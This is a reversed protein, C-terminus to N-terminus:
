ASLKGLLEDTSLIASAYAPMNFKLSADMEAHGFSGIADKVLTVEHGLEAAFRVTSEICTISSRSRQKLSIASVGSVSSASFSIARMCRSASSAITTPSSARRAVGLARVAARSLLDRKSPAAM